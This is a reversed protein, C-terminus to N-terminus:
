PAYLVFDLWYSELLFDNMKGRLRECTERGGHLEQWTNHDPIDLSATEFLALFEQRGPGGGHIKREETKIHSVEEDVRYLRGRYLGPICSLAPLHEEQYWHLVETEFGSEINFKSLLLYPAEMPPGEGQSAVLGYIARVIHTSHSMIQRTWPSPHNVAQLYPQSSLVGPDETEYCMLFHPAGTAGRYRRGVSFGPLNVRELVHECTHWKQFEAHYVPDVDTWITLLGKATKAQSRDKV